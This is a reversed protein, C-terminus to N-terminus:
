KQPVYKKYGPEVNRLYEFLDSNGSEKFDKEEIKLYINCHQLVTIEGEEGTYITVIEDDEFDRKAIIADTENRIYVIPPKYKKIQEKLSKPYYDSVFGVIRFEETMKELEGLVVEGFVSEPYMLVVKRQAM